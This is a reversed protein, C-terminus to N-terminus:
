LSFQAVAMGDNSCCVTEYSHQTSRCNPTRTVSRFTRLYEVFAILNTQLIVQFSLFLDNASPCCTFSRLSNSASALVFLLQAM